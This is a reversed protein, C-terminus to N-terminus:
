ILYKGTVLREEFFKDYAIDLTTRVFRISAPSMICKSNINELQKEDEIFPNGRSKLEKYLQTVDKRFKEEFTKNDEHPLNSLLNEGIDKLM